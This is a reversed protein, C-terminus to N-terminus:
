LITGQITYREGEQTVGSFLVRGRVNQLRHEVDRPTHVPKRNIHTIIFHKPFGKFFNTKARLIKVGHDIKYLNKEVKSIKELEIGWKKSYYVKRRIINTTGERNLLTIDKQLKTGNRIVELRLTEGPYLHAILSELESKESVLKGDISRIVDGVKLGTVEAAGERQVKKILVGNLTSLKLKKALDSSIDVLEVGLFARQVEGYEIMDNVVKEVIDVPVAFSYGSYAGTRSLIATNIGILKGQSNVLAGGSNGPNIAADTQIFSEIPFKDRLLGINRGKASVIGATVTSTLNFPNGVALVWEGIRVDEVRGLKARPLGNAEIKVVAIDTSPDSGILTATYTRKKYVIEIHDAEAIVHHNTVVYGDASFIVGSGSSVVDKSSRRWFWALNDFTGERVNRVYVVSEKSLRAAEVLDPYGSGQKASRGVEDVNDKDSSLSARARRSSRSFVKTSRLKSSLLVGSDIQETSRISAGWNSSLLLTTGAGLLGGLFGLVFVNKKM